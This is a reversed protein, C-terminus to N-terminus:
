ARDSVTPCITNTLGAFAGIGRFQSWDPDERREQYLIGILAQLDAHNEACFAVIDRRMEEAQYELQQLYLPIYSKVAQRRMLDLAGFEFGTVTSVSCSNVMAVFSNIVHFAADKEQADTIVLRRAISLNVALKGLAFLKAEVDEFFRRSEEAARNAAETAAEAAEQAAKAAQGIHPIIQEVKLAEAALQPALRKMADQVTGGHLAIERLINPDIVPKTSV